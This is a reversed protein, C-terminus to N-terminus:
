VKLKNKLLKLKTNLVFMPCGIISQNWTDVILDRCDDNLSWMKMFRFQYKFSCDTFQFELLLPFHDSSLRNLSSCTVSSCADLLSQNCVARDLRRETLAEEWDVM